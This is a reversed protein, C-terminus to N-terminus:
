PRMSSGSIASKGGTSQRIRKATLLGAGEYEDEYLQRYEQPCIFPEHPDFCEIQLLWDDKEHFEKIFDLGATVTKVSPMDKEEPQFRRNTWNQRVSDGTKSLRCRIRVWRPSGGTGKRDASDRGPRTGTTIRRVAM